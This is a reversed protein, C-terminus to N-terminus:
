AIRIFQMYMLIYKENYQMDNHYHGFFWYRFDVTGDVKDFYETLEDPAYRGNSIKYAIRYPCCHSVIYDVNNDNEELTKIGFEMEKKSPM